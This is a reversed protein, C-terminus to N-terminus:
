ANLVEMAMPLTVSGTQRHEFSLWRQGQSPSATREAWEVAAAIAECSTPAELLVWRVVRKPDKAKGGPKRHPEYWCDIRSKWLRM